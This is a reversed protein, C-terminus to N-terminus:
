KAAKLNSQAALKPFLYCYVSTSCGCSGGVSKKISFLLNSPGEMCDNLPSYGLSEQLTDNYVSPLDVDRNTGHSLAYKRLMNVLTKQARETLGNGQHQFAISTHHGIKALAFVKQTFNAMM